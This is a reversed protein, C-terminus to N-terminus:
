KRLEYVKKNQTLAYEIELRVGESFRGRLNFRNWCPAAILIDCKNIIPFYVENELKILQNVKIYIPILIDKPNIIQIDPILEKIKFICIDEFETNYDATSHSFFGKM